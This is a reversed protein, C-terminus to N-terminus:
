VLLLFNGTVLDLFKWYYIVIPKIISTSGHIVVNMLVKILKVLFFIPSCLCFIFVKVTKWWFIQPKNLLFSSNSLEKFLCEGCIIKCLLVDNLQHLTSFYLVEDRCKPLWIKYAVACIHPKHINTWSLICQVLILIPLCELLFSMYFQSTFNCIKEQVMM